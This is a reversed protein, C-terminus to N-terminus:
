VLDKVYYFRKGTEPYQELVFVEQEAVVDTVDFQM